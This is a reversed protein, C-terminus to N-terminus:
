EPLKLRYLLNGPKDNGFYNWGGYEFYVEGNATVAKLKYTWGPYNGLDRLVPVYTITSGEKKQIVLSKNPLLGDVDLLTTTPFQYMQCPPTYTRGDSYTETTLELIASGCDEPKILGESPFSSVEETKAKASLTQPPEPHVTTFFAWYVFLLFAALFAVLIGVLFGLFFYKKKM